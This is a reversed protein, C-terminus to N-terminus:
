FDQFFIMLANVEQVADAEARLADEECAFFVEEEEGGFDEEEDELIFGPPLSFAYGCDEIVLTQDEITYRDLFFSFSPVSTIPLM